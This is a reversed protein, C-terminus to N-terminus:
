NEDPCVCVPVCVCLYVCVSVQNKKKITDLEMKHEQNAKKILNIQERNERQLNSM